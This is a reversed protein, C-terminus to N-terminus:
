ERRRHRRRPYSGHFPDGKDLHTLRRERHAHRCGREARTVTLDAIVQELVKRPVLDGRIILLVVLFILGGWGLGQWPIAIQSPDM